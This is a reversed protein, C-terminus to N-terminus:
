YSRTYECTLTPLTHDRCARRKDYSYMEVTGDLSFKSYEDANCKYSLKATQVVGAGTTDTKDFGNTYAFDITQSKSIAGSLTIGCFNRRITTSGYETGQGFETSFKMASRPVLGAFKLTRQKVNKFATSNPQILQDNDSYTMTYRRAIPVSLTTARLSPSESPNKGYPDMLTYSWQFRKFVSPAGALSITHMGCRKDATKQDKSRMTYNDNNEYHVTTARLMAPMAAYKPLAADLTIKHGSAGAGVARGDKSTLAVTLSPGTLSFLTKPKYGVSMSRSTARDKDIQALQVSLNKAPAYAVTTEQENLSRDADPVGSLSTFKCDTAVTLNRSLPGAMQYTLTRRALLQASEAPKFDDSLYGVGFTIGRTKQKAALAYQNRTLGKSDHQQAANMTFGLGTKYQKEIAITQLSDLKHAIEDSTQKLGFAVKGSAATGYGLALNQTLKSLKKSTDSAHDSSFDIKGTRDNGLGLSYSRSAAKYNKLNDTLDSNSFAFRASQAGGYSLSFTKADQGKKSLLTNLSAISAQDGGALATKLADDGKFKKSVSLYSGSVSIGSTKYSFDQSMAAQDSDKQQNAALAQSGGSLYYQGKLQLGTTAIANTRGGLVLNNTFGYTSPATLRKANGALDKGATPTYYLFSAGTAQGGPAALGLQGGQSIHFPILTASQGGLQLKRSSATGGAVPALVASTATFSSDSRLAFPVTDASASTAITALAPL